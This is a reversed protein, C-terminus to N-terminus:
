QSYTVKWGKATIKNIHGQRGMLFYTGYSLKLTKGTGDHATIANALMTTTEADDWNVFSSFDYTTISTSNFFSSSLYLKHLNYQKTGFIGSMSTVNTTDFARLDLRKLSSCGFFMYFMYKVNSTSFNSLDLSELETCNQFMQGMDTVNSTNFNNLVLTKLSSCGFFMSSMDTVNSTSFNSLDLTKLSSCTGFMSNMKTVNSTNFNSLDLTKLSSCSSFMAAIDTVNSTDINWKSISTIKNGEDTFFGNYNSYFCVPVKLVDEQKVYMENNGGPKQVVHVQIADAPESTSTSSGIMFDTTGTTTGFMVYDDVPQSQNEYILSNGLYMKSVPSTGLYINKINEALM